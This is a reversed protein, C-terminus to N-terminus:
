CRSRYEDVLIMLWAAGTTRLDAGLGLAAPCVTVNDASTPSGRYSPDIWNRSPAWNIAVTGTTLPVAEM